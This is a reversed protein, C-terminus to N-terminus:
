AAVESLAEGEWWAHSERRDVWEMRLPDRVRDPVDTIIFCGPAVTTEWLLVGDSERVARLIRARECRNTTDTAPEIIEIYSM